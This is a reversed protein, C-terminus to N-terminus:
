LAAARQATVQRPGITGMREKLSQSRGTFVAAYWAANWMVKKVYDRTETFPIIEAFAAGEIEGSLQQRWRAPRGPGANYGATALVANNQLRSSVDRLYFTGFRLNTGLDHLHEVRFDAHGLQGAIWQATAPMIQMLGQAGVWSRADMIFRSEQRILGYVWAPDLGHDRAAASLRERFPSIFRLSFNHETRTRDATNVCRDLVERKCAYDAAALLQRDSMGRLAFNWERNGEPRWGAAYFRLARALAPHNRAQAAEQATPAPPQQPPPPLQGLEEAALQGYFSLDGAIPRLLAEARAPDGLAKAARGSWYAWTPDQMGVPSMGALVDRLLKWDAVALAARAMNGRTEDTVDAGAGKRAWGAADPMLRQAAQSAIVAWAWAQAEAPLGHLASLREAADAPDKRAQQAIAALTAERDRAGQRLVRVPDRFALDIEGGDRRMLAATRRATVPAAGEFSARLRRALDPAGFQGSAVAVEILDNCADGLERAQGLIESAAPPLLEGAKVMATWGLCHIASEDRMVWRDYHERLQPWRERRALALMLEKRVVDSLLANQTGDIFREASQELAPGLTELRLALTLRWFTLYEAMPHGAAQAAARELRPRDQALFAQRAAAFADDRVTGAMPEAPLPLAVPSSPAPRLAAPAPTALAPASPGAAPTVPASSTSPAAPEAAPQAVPSPLVPRDANAPGDTAPAASAASADAASPEARPADAAAAEAAAPPAVPAMPVVPAFVALPTAAPRLLTATAPAAAAYAVPRLVPARVRERRADRRAPATARATHGPDHARKTAAQADTASPLLVLGTMLGALVAAPVNM